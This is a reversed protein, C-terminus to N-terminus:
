NQLLHHYYWLFFYYSYNSTSAEMVDVALREAIILLQSFIISTKKLRIGVGFCFDVHMLRNGTLASDVQVITEKMKAM